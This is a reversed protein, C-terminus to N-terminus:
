QSTRSFYTAMSIEHAELPKSNKNYRKFLEIEIESNDFANFELVSM